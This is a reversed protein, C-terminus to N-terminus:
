LSGSGTITGVAEKIKEVFQEYSAQMNTRTAWAYDPIAWINGSFNSFTNPDAGFGFGFLKKAAVCKVLYDNDVLDSVVSIVIADYKLLALKENPLLLSTESNSKLTPFIVDAEKLVDDLQRYSYKTAPKESRSWYVVRMGLGECLKAIAGGIHGLGIIGATKGAIDIGQYKVFDHAYDLPFDKRILLPTNRALSMMMTIAYEAVASYETTLNELAICRIDHAAAYSTDLWSMNDTSGIIVKLGPIKEYDSAAFHWDIFDPNICLIKDTASDRVPKCDTIRSKKSIIHLDPVSEKLVLLQDPAVISEFIEDFIFVSVGNMHLM